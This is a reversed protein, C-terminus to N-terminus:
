ISANQFQNSIKALLSFLAAALGLFLFRKLSYHASTNHMAVVGTAHDSCNDELPVAHRKMKKVNDIPLTGDFYEFCGSEAQWEVVERALIEDTFAAFGNM